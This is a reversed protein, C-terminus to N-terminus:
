GAAPGTRLQCNGGHFRDFVHVSSVGGAEKRAVVERMDSLAYSEKHGLAQGSGPVTNQLGDTAVSVLRTVRKAEPSSTSPNAGTKQASVQAATTATAL